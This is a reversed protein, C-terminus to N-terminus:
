FNIKPFCWVDWIETCGLYQSLGSNAVQPICSSVGELANSEQKYNVGKYLNCSVLLRFRKGNFSILLRNGKVESM